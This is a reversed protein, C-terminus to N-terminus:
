VAVELRRELRPLAQEVKLRYGRDLDFNASVMRRGAWRFRNTGPETLREDVMM